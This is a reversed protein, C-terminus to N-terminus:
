RRPLLREPYWSFVGAGHKDKAGGRIQGYWEGHDFKRVNEAVDRHCNRCNEQRTANGIFAGLYGQPYIQDTHDTTPIFKEDTALRFPTTLLLKRALDPSIKPVKTVVRTEDFAPITHGSRQRRPGVIQVRTGTAREYSTADTFPRYVRFFWEGDRMTMRHVKFTYDGQGIRNTVLEVIETGEGLSWGLGSHTGAPTRYAYGSGRVIETQPFVVPFERVGAAKVGVINRTRRDDFPVSPHAWPWEGNGNSFRPGRPGIDEYISHFRGRHQFIPPRSQVTYWRMSPDAFLSKLEADNTRPQFDVLSQANVSAALAWVLIGIRIAM